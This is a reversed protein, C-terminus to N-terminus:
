GTVAGVSEARSEKVFEDHGADLDNSENLVAMAQDGGLPGTSRTSFVWFVLLGSFYSWSYFGAM